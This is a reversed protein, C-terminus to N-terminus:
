KRNPSVDWSGYCNFTSAAQTANAPTGYPSRTHPMWLSFLDLTAALSTFPRWWLICSSSMRANSLAHISALSPSMGEQPGENEAFWMDERWEHRRWAPRQRLRLLNCKVRQQGNQRGQCEGCLPVVLCELATWLWTWWLAKWLAYTSAMGYGLTRGLAHESIGVHKPTRALTHAFPPWIGWIRWTESGLTRLEDTEPWTQRSTRWLDDMSSGTTGDRRKGNTSMRSGSRPWAWMWAWRSWPADHRADSVDHRWISRM